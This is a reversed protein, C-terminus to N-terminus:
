MMFYDLMYLLHYSLGPHGRVMQKVKTLDVVAAQCTTALEEM